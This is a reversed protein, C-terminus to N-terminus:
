DPTRPRSADTVIRKAIERLKVNEHQSQAVLVDFAEDATKAQANMIVGKAQEIVSRSEMAAELNESLVRSDWYAQANALVFAAQMAFQQGTNIDPAGFAQETKAYLNMAGIPGGTLMMPLSLTSLVGHHRAVECFEPWRQETLTSEIVFVDGTRYADVCPGRGTDYQARDIDPVDPHTFVFTGVRGDVMMTIGVFEAQPVAVTTLESVRTLTEGMTADGVFYQTLAAVSQSLLPEDSM